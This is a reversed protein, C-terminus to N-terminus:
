PADKAEQLSNFISATYAGLCLAAVKLATSGTFTLAGLERASYALKRVQLECQTAGRQGRCKKTTNEIFRAPKQGTFTWPCDLSSTVESRTERLLKTAGRM